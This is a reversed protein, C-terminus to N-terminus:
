RFAQGVADFVLKTGDGDVLILVLGDAGSITLTGHQEPADYSGGGVIRTRTSDWVVVMVFGQRPDPGRAGAWVDINQDQSIISWSSTFTDDRDTPPASVDSGFFLLGAGAPVGGDPAIFEVQDTPNPNELSKPAPDVQGAARAKDINDQIAQKDPPLSDGPSDSAAPGGALACAVLIMSALIGGVLAVARNRKM